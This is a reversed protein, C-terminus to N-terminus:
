YLLHYFGEAADKMAALPSDVAVNITRKKTGYAVAEIIELDNDYKAQINASPDTANFAKILHCLGTKIQMSEEVTKM